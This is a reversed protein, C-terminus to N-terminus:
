LFHPTGTLPYLKGQSPPSFTRSNINTITAFSQSCRLFLQIACNFPKKSGLSQCVQTEEQVAESLQWLFVTFCDWVM